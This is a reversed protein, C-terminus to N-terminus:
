REKLYTPSTPPGNELAMQQTTNAIEFTSLLLIIMKGYVFDVTLQLSPIPDIYQVSFISSCGIM